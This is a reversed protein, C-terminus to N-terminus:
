VVYLVLAVVAALLGALVIGDQYLASIFARYPAAGTVLKILQPGSVMSPVAKNLVTHSIMHLHFLLKHGTIWLKHALDQDQM